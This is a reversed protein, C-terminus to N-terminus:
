MVPADRELAAELLAVELGRVHDQGDVALEERRAGLDEGGVGPTGVAQLQRRSSQFALQGLDVPLASGQSPLSHFLLAASGPHCAADARQAYANLRPSGGGEVLGLRAEPFLGDHEDLGAYVQHHQLGELVEVLDLLGDQRHLLECVEGDGGEHRGVLFTLGEETSVRLPEDLLEVGPAGAQHAEDAAVARSRLQAEQLAQARDRVFGDDQLGVGAQGAEHIPTEDVPGARLIQALEGAPGQRCAGAGHTAAAAGGRGMDPGHAGGEALLPGEHLRAAPKLELGVLLGLGLHGEGVAAAEAELQGLVLEDVGNLQDWGLAHLVVLEHGLGALALGQAGIGDIHRVAGPGHGAHGGEGRGEDDLLLHAQLRDEM